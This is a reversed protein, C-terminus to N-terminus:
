RLLGSNLGPYDQRTMAIGPFTGETNYDIFTALELVLKVGSVATWAYLLFKNTKQPPLNGRVQDLFALHHVIRAGVGDDNAELLLGFYYEFDPFVIEPKVDVKESGSVFGGADFPIPIWQQGLYNFPKGAPMIESGTVPDVSNVFRHIQGGTPTLDISVFEISSPLVTGHLLTM